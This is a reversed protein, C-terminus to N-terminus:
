RQPTKYKGEISKISRRINYPSSSMIAQTDIHHLNLGKIKAAWSSPTQEIGYFEICDTLRIAKDISDSILCTLGNAQAEVLTVPLGEKISPFLFLDAVNYIQNVDSRKGLFKVSDKIGLSKVKEEMASRLPGDGILVLVSKNNQKHYEYYIDILFEHNKIKEFRGVHLIVVFGKPIELENRLKTRLAQQFYFDELVIGNDIVTFKNRNYFISTGADQGCAFYDTALKNIIFKSFAFYLKKFLSPSVESLTTHSHVIRRIGAKKGALVSFMSNYATHAHIIDIKEDKIIKEINAIHKFAGVIKVDPTQIIKAGLSIVEESYDFSKDGYCLFIFEFRQRDINRLVNMLFTEAGGRDMGGVVQLIRIRKM